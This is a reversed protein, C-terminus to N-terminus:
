PPEELHDWGLRPWPETHGKRLFRLERDATVTGIRRCATSVGPPPAPSDPPLTFLLMYDEGGGLALEVPTEGLAECLAEFSPSLPLSDADVEAGTGSERCLRPLDRALGDSLDMAAVRPLLGLARGLELQPKPLLHRAVARRAAAALAPPTEFGTPLSVGEGGDDREVEEGDPEGAPPLLRAGRAILRQGAASEGLSGGVWLSDGPRAESRLLFRADAPSPLEGTLTLTAVTGGPSRALDGGALTVGQARCASLFTEFFRHHDFGARASLALLAFRPVAGVAALDSLNVALLRRALLAPDLGEPVHIGEIQSDVTFACSGTAPLCAADNGLLDDGDERLRRRLWGILADEDSPPPM